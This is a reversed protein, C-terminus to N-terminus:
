FLPDSGQSKVTTLQWTPELFQVWARQLLPWHELRQAMEGAARLSAKQPVGLSTQREIMFGSDESGSAEPKLVGFGNSQNLIFGGVWM